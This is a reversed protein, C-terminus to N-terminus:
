PKGLPHPRRDDTGRDASQHDEPTPQNVDTGGVTGRQNGLGLMLLPDFPAIFHKWLRRIM